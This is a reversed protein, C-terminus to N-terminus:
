NLGYKEKIIRIFQQLKVSASADGSLGSTNPLSASINPRTPPVVVEKSETSPSTTQAQAQMTERAPTPTAVKQAPAPTSVPPKTSPAAGQSQAPQSRQSKQDRRNEIYRALQDIGAEAEHFLQERMEASAGIPVPISMEITHLREGM